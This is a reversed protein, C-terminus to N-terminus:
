DLPSKVKKLEENSIKTYIQTTSLDSHGLLEQIKRIDVGAELLHTAFSHRLSHIHVDKIIGAEVKAKELIRQVYRPYLPDGNKGVFVFDDKSKFQCFEKIDKSLKESLITMRDKGGKGDRIWVVNEDFSFDKVKLNLAESLRLGSSYYMQLILKDKKSHIVNFIKKIEDKSLVVPTSKKIKPTKIEFKRGLVENYYFILAAKILGISKSSLNEDTMKQAMYFKIDDETVDEPIKEVRELFQRNYLVYMKSTQKSFGRLRIETEIKKIIKPLDEQM